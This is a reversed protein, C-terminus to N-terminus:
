KSRCLRFGQDPGRGNAQHNGRFSSECSFDSGMWGGGRWARANGITTASDEYWDECWERVNGSMDYLGLENPMKSGVQKTKNNNSKVVPWSWVGSLYKDGANQWYWAVTDVINSGSYKYSKSMQGGGAAYEWEAETPLRYGNSNANITVTWKVDDLDNKNKPDKQNKDITYYPTLGEKISRKNCYDICDYWSVMEVPLNNGKFKSSDSGMVENWEKQTIEYRGIYFDAVSANKGYLNSKTNVFAGGKVLVFNETANNSEQNGSEKRSCASTIVIIASFSILLNRMSINRQFIGTFYYFFNYAKM